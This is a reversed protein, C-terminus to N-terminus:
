AIHDPRILMVVSAAVLLAVLGFNVATMAWFLRPRASRRFRLQFRQGPMLWFRASGTRFDNRLIMVGPLAVAIVLLAILHTSM